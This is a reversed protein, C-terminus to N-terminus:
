PVGRLGMKNVQLIITEVRCATNDPKFILPFSTGLVCNTSPLHCYCKFLFSREYSIQKPFAIGQSFFDTDPKHGPERPSQSLLQGCLEVKRVATLHRRPRLIVAPFLSFLTARTGPVTNFQSAPHCTGEPLRSTLLDSM